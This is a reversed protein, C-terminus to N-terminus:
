RINLYRIKIERKNNNLNNSKYWKNKTISLRKNKDNDTIKINSQERWHM